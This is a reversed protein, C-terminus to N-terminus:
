SNVTYTLLAGGVIWSWLDADPIEVPLIDLAVYILAVRVGFAFAIVGTTVIAKLLLEVHNMHRGRRQFVSEGKEHKENIARVLDANCEDTIGVDRLVTLMTDLENILAIAATWRKAVAESHEFVTLNKVPTIQEVQVDTFEWRDAHVGTAERIACGMYARTKMRTENANNGDVILAITLTVKYQNM